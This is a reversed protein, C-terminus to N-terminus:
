RAPQLHRHAAVFGNIAAAVPGAHELHLHHNGPLRTLILTAVRAARREIMEAPAYRQPPDALVLLTPAVIGDLLHDVQPESFRYLGPLALRPDSSWSWGASGDDATVPVLGREVLVRAAGSSLGNAIVRAEVAVDQTAFVRMGRLGLGDRALLGKRLQQGAQEVAGPLPGLAEILLLRCVQEPFLAAYTSALTGGLSHGLLDFSTWGLRQLVVRVDDLHDVWHDWSGKPRWDSRGHGTLDIAVVHHDALLPALADFSAANDLWGHIALMPAASPDGWCRAAIRHHRLEIWQERVPWPTDAGAM